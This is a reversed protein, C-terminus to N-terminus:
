EVDKGIFKNVFYIQGKKNIVYEVFAKDSIKLYKYATTKSIGLEKIWDSVIKRMGMIEIYHNYSCNRMNEKRTVWRCNSPEYNGDNDIRDITLDDSYGNSLAWDRFAEFKKWEDCVTIGRGGYRSYCETNKNYCRTKMNSWISYLRKPERGHTRKAKSTQKKQYCGCSKTHGSKLHEIRVKTVKGCDCECLVFTDDLIEKVTLFNNRYGKEM